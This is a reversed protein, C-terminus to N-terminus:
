AAEKYTPAVLWRGRIGGHMQSPTVAWGLNRVQHAIAKGAQRSLGLYDALEALTRGHWDGELLAAEVRDPLDDTYLLSPPEYLFAVM